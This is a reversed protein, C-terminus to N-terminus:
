LQVADEAAALAEFLLEADFPKTLFAHAGLRKTAAETRDDRVGTMAIVPMRWNEATMVAQLDIGSMGGLHIDLVVCGPATRDVTDLFTEASRYTQVTVGISRLLRALSRRMSEDDDVIHVTPTALPVTPVVHTHARCITELHKRDADAGFGRVDYGCMVTFRPSAFRDNWWGELAIAADHRGRRCLVDVMEGYIWMPRDAGLDAAVKRFLGDAAAPDLTGDKMLLSVAADAEVFYVRDRGAGTHALLADLTDSRGIMVAPSGSRWAEEFFRVLGRHLWRRQEYFQVAHAGPPVIPGAM